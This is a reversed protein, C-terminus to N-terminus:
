DAAATWKKSCFSQAIGVARSIKAPNLVIVGGPRSHLWESREIGRAPNQDRLNLESLVAQAQAQTPNGKGAARFWLALLTGAIAISSYATPGREATQKKMAEWCHHDLHLYPEIDTPGCAGEVEAASLGLEAAMKKIAEGPRPFNLRRDPDTTDDEETDLVESTGKNIALLVKHWLAADETEAVVTADAQLIIKLKAKISM